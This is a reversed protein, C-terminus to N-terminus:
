RAASSQTGPTGILEARSVKNVSDILKAYARAVAELGTMPVNEPIDHDTHYFAPSEIMQVSPTDLSAQGMDGSANPEMEDYIAVGFTRYAALAIESLKDSGYVWWRRADTQNSRRLNAGWYYTQTVSVHECNLLLANKAFFTDLIHHVVMSANGGHVGHELFVVGAIQPNDRPAFFVFWGNDRLDKDTKGAAAKGQNSIVQATGTKGVVDHGPIMAKTGTGVPNNVAMWLGDKIAQLKDPDIVVHRIRKRKWTYVIHVRGDSSQIVNRAPSRETRPAIAQRIGPM